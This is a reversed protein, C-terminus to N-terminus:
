SPVSSKGLEGESKCKSGGNLDARLPSCHSALASWNLEMERVEISEQVVGTVAYNKRLHLM